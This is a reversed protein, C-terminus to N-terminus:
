INPFLRAPGLAPFLLSDSLATLMGCPKNYLLVVPDLVEVVNKGPRIRRSPDTEVKGDVLVRGTTLLNRKVYRQSCGMLNCNLRLHKALKLATEGGTIGVDAHSDGPPPPNRAMIQTADALNRM